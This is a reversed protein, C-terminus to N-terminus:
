NTDCGGSSDGGSFKNYVDFSFNAITVFALAASVVNTATLGYITKKRNSLSKEKEEIIEESKIQEEQLYEISSSKLLSLLDSIGRAVERPNNKKVDVVDTLVTRFSGRNKLKKTCEELLKDNYEINGKEFLFRMLLEDQNEEQLMDMLKDIDSEQNLEELGVVSRVSPTSIDSFANEQERVRGVALHVAQSLSGPQTSQEDQDEESTTADTYTEDSALPSQAGGQEVSSKLSNLCKQMDCSAKTLREISKKGEDDSSEMAMLQM